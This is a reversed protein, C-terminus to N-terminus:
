ALVITCGWFSSSAQQWGIELVLVPCAGFMHGETCGTRFVVAWVNTFPFLSPYPALIFPPKFNFIQELATEKLSLNSISVAFVEASFSTGYASSLSILWYFEMFYLSLICVLSWCTIRIRSTFVHKWCPSLTVQVKKYVYREEMKLM